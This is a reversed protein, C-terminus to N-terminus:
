LTESFRGSISEKRVFFGQADLQDLTEYDVVGASPLELQRQLAEIDRQCFESFHQRLRGGQAGLKNLLAHDIVGASHSQCNTTSM